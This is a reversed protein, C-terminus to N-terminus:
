VLVFKRTVISNPRAETSANIGSPNVDDDIDVGSKKFFYAPAAPTPESPPPNENNAVEPSASGTPPASNDQGWIRHNHKKNASKLFTTPSNTAGANREYIERLDPLYFQGGSALSFKYKNNGTGHDAYACTLSPDLLLVYDEYLRRYDAVSVLRGDCELTNFEQAEGAFTSMFRGVTRFNGDADHIRWKAVSADINKYIAFSECMGIKLDTRSGKLWDIVDGGATLFRVCKHSGIGSEIYTPVNQTCGSLAPLTVDFASTAGKIIIKKGIDGAVLTTAGTIIMVGSFASVPAVSEANGLVLDFEVVFLENPQFTDGSQLLTFTGMVNDWSYQVSNQMTGQGVREVKINRGRWDETGGTGDFVFTTAAAVLGATVGVQIEKPVYFIPSSAGPVFDTYLIERVITMDDPLVELLRFRYNTRELGPFHVTRLNHTPPFSQATVITSLDTNKYLAYKMHNVTISLQPNSTVDFTETAM